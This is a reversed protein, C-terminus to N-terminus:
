ITSAAVSISGVRPILLDAHHSAQDVSPLCPAAIQIMTITEALRYLSSTAPIQFERVVGKKEETRVRFTAIM